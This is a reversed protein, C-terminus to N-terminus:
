EDVEVADDGLVQQHCSAPAVRRRAFDSHRLLPMPAVLAIQDAPQTAQRAVLALFALSQALLALDLATGARVFPPAHTM